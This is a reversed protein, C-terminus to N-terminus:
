STVGACWVIADSRKVMSVAGYDTTIEIANSGSTTAPGVLTTAATGSIILSNAGERVVMTSWGDSLISGSTILTVASTTDFFVVKGSDTDALNRSVSGSAPKVFVAGDVSLNGSLHLDGGFVATGRTTTGRSNTSGSVFFYTDDGNNENFVTTVDSTVTFGKSGYSFSGSNLVAGNIIGPGPTMFISTTNGDGIAISETDGFAGTNLKILSIDQTNFTDRAMLSSNFPIAIADAAVANRGIGLNGTFSVESSTLEFKNSTAYISGLVSVGEGGILYIDGGAAGGSSRGGTINVNGGNAYGYGGVIYARGGTGANAVNGTHDGGELVAEGGETGTSEAYGGKIGVSGGFGNVTAAGGKVLVSGGSSSDQDNDGGLVFVSVGDDGSSADADYGKVTFDDKTPASGGAVVNSSALITNNILVSSTTYVTSGSLSWYNDGGSSSIVLTSGPGNDVIAIGTGATLVRENSLSSTAALVLYSATSDGDGGGGGGTGDITLNGSIHLDGGFVAVGANSSDKSGVAGSVFLFVDSSQIKELLPSTIQGQNPSGTDQSEIPYIAIQSRGSSAISGSAIIKQTQINSARFDIPM